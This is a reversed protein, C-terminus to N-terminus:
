HQAKATGRQSRGRLALGVLALAPALLAWTGPEPVASLVNVTFPPSTPYLLSTVNQLAGTEPTTAPSISLATNISM